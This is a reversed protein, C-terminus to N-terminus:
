TSVVCNDILSSVVIKIQEADCQEAEIQEQLQGKRQQLEVIRNEQQTIFTELEAIRQKPEQADKEFQLKLTKLKKECEALQQKQKENISLVSQHKSEISAHKKEMREKFKLNEKFENLAEPPLINMAKELEDILQQNAEIEMRREKFLEEQKEM